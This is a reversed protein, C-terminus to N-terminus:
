EAREKVAMTLVEEYECNYRQQCNNCQEDNRSKSSWLSRRQVANPLIRYYENMVFPPRQRHWYCCSLFPNQIVDPMVEIQM